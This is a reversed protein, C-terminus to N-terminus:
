SSLITDCLKKLSSHHEKQMLELLNCQNDLIREIALNYPAKDPWSMYGMEPKTSLVYSFTVKGDKHYALMVQLGKNNEITLGIPYPHENFVVVEVSVGDINYSQYHFDDDTTFSSEFAHVTRLTLHGAEVYKMKKTDSSKIFHEVHLSLTNKM